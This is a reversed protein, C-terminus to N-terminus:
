GLQNVNMGTKMLLGLFVLELLIERNTIERKPNMCYYQTQRHCNKHPKISYSLVM